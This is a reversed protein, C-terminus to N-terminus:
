IRMESHAFSSRISSANCRIIPLLYISNKLQHTLSNMLKLNILEHTKLESSELEIVRVM